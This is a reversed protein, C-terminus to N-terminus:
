EGEAPTSAPSDGPTSLASASGEGKWTSAGVGEGAKAELLPVLSARLTDVYKAKAKADLKVTLTPKGYTVMAAGTWEGDADILKGDDGQTCTEALDDLFVTSVLTDTVVVGLADLKAALEADKDMEALLLPANIGIRPETEGKSHAYADFVAQDAIQPRAKPQTIYAQGLAAVRLNAAAGTDDHVKQAHNSLVLRMQIKREEIVTELAAIGALQDLADKVTLEELDSM